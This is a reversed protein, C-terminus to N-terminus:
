KRFQRRLAWADDASAVLVGVGAVTVVDAADRLRHWDLRGRELLCDLNGYSTMVSAVPLERLRWVAPVLRPRVSLLMLVSHLLDLNEGGPEIVADTDAVPIAEGRLRLGASGVLLMSVGEATLVAALLLPGPV